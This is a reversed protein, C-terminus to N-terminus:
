WRSQTSSRSMALFWVRVPFSPVNRWSLNALSCAEQKWFATRERAAAMSTRITDWSWGQAAPGAATQSTATQTGGAGTGGQGPQDQPPQRWPDVEWGGPGTQLPAADTRAADPPRLTDGANAARAPDWGAGGFSRFFFARTDGLVGSIVM